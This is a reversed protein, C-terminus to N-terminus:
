KVLDSWLISYGVMLEEEPAIFQALSKLYENQVELSVTRLVGDELIRKVLFIKLENEIMVFLVQDIEPDLSKQFFHLYLRFIRNVEKVYHIAFKIDKGSVEKLVKIRPAKLKLAADPYMLVNDM